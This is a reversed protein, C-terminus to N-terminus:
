EADGPDPTFPFTPDEEFLLETDSTDDPAPLFPLAWEPPEVNVLSDPIMLGDLIPRAVGKEVYTLWMGLGVPSDDAFMQRGSALEAVSLKRLGMAISLPGKRLIERSVLEKDDLLGDTMACLILRTADYGHVHWEEVASGSTDSVQGYLDLMPGNSAQLNMTSTLIVKEVYQKHRLLEEPQYWASNGLRITNFEYFAFQPSLFPLTGPEIPLYLAEYANLAIANSDINGTKFEITQRAEILHQEWEREVHEDTMDLSDIPLSLLVIKGALTDVVTLELSDVRADVEVLGLSDLSSAISDMRAIEQAILEERFERKFGILRLNRFQTALSVGEEPRYWEQDLIEVEERQELVDIFGAVSERGRDTYPAVIGFVKIGLVDAAYTAALEGELRWDAVTRVVSPGIGELATRGHGPILVPVGAAQAEVAAPVTLEEPGAMILAWVGYDRVLKRAAMVARAPESAVREIELQVRTGGDLEWVALAAEVGAIFDNAAEWGSEEDPILLGIVPTNASVPLLRRLMRRTGEGRASMMLENARYAAPGDLLQDLHDLAQEQLRVSPNADLTAVLEKAADSYNGRAEHATALLYHADALYPSDAGAADLLSFGRRLADDVRDLALEARGALLRAALVYDSRPNAALYTEAVRLAEAPQGITLARQAQELERPLPQAVSAVSLILVLLLIAITKISTGGNMM